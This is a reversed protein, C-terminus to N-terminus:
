KIRIQYMLRTQYWKQYLKQYWKSIMESIMKSILYCIIGPSSERDIEITDSASHSRCLNRAAVLWPTWLEPPNYWHDHLFCFRNCKCCRGSELVVFVRRSVSAAPRAREARARPTRRVGSAGAPRANEATRPGWVFGAGRRGSRTGGVGLRPQKRLESSHALIDARLAKSDVKSPDFLLHDTIQKQYMM